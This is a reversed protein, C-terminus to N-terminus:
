VFLTVLLGKPRRTVGALSSFDIKMMMPVIMLWILVAIPANIQSGAGFEMGRLSESFGPLARGILVGAVMCLGVWVTLYREFSNMMKPVAEAAVPSTGAESASM